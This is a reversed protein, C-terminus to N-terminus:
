GREAVGAVEEAVNGPDAAVERRDDDPDDHHAQNGDHDGPVAAAALIRAMGTRSACTKSMVRTIWSATAGTNRSVAIPVIMLARAPRRPRAISRRRTSSSSTVEMSPAM